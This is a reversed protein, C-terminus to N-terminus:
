NDTMSSVATYGPWVEFTCGRTLLGATWRYRLCKATGKSFNDDTGDQDDKENRPKEARAKVEFCSLFNKPKM